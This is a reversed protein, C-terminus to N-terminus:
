VFTQNTGTMGHLLDAVRQVPLAQFKCLCIFVAFGQVPDSPRRHLAHVAVKKLARSPSTLELEILLWAQQLPGCHPQLLLQFHLELPRILKSLKPKSSGCYKQQKM